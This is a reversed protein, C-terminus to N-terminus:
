LEEHHSARGGIRNEGGPLPREVSSAQQFSNIHYYILPIMSPCVTPKIGIVDEARGFGQTIGRRLLSPTTQSAGGDLESPVPPHVAEHESPTAM